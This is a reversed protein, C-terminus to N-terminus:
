GNYTADYAASQIGGRAVGLDSLERDSLMGLERVTQRYIVRQARAQQARRLAAAVRAVLGTGANAAVVPTTDMMSMDTVKEREDQHTAYECTAGNAQSQIHANQRLQVIATNAPCDHCKHM